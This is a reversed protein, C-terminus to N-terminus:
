WQVFYNTILRSLQHRPNELFVGIMELVISRKLTPRLITESGIKKKKKKKKQTKKKGHM